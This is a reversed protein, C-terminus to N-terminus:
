ADQRLGKEFDQRATDLDAQLLHLTLVRERLRIRLDEPTMGGHGGQAVHIRWLGLDHTTEALPRRLDTLVSVLLYHPLDRGLYHARVAELREASALYDDPLTQMGDTELANRLSTHLSITSAAATHAQDFLRRLAQADRRRDARAQLHQVAFASAVAALTAGAAALGVSVEEQAAILQLAAIQDVM